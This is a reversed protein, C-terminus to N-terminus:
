GNAKALLAFPILMSFVLLWTLVIKQMKKM